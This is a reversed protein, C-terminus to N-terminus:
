EPLWERIWSDPLPDYMEDIRLVTERSLAWWTGSKDQRRVIYIPTTAGSRPPLTGLRDVGEPLGDNPNGGSLPSVADLDIIDWHEIVARM